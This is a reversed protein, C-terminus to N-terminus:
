ASKKPPHFFPSLPADERIALRYLFHGWRPELIPLPAAPPVVEAIVPTPVLDGLTDKCHQLTYGTSRGHACTEFVIFVRGLQLGFAGLLVLVCLKGAASLSSTTGFVRPQSSRLM